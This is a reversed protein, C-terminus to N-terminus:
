DRFVNSMWTCQAVWNELRGSASLMGNIACLVTMLRQHLEKYLTVRNSTSACLCCNKLDVLFLDNRLEYVVIPM